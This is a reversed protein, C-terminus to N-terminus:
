PKTATFRVSRVKGVLGRLEREVIEPPVCALLSEQDSQVIGYLEDYDYVHKSEARVDALGAAELGAVYDAEPIAGSVCSEHLGPINRLHEPMDEVVIDSVSIRGGPALVRAIEAFVRHKEPSLNIVCNSIVWDVSADSIPLEEILGKRVEVIADLGAFAINDRALKLMADTMDVGIVKGSPGVKEAALLLDLGGGSGLDLVIQGETVEAFAVPNGCAFSNEVAEAPLESLDEYGAVRASAGNPERSGCCGGSPTNVAKTYSESVRQRLNTPESM